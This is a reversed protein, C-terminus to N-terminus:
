KRAYKAAESNIPDVAHQKIADLREQEPDTVHVQNGAPAAVPMRNVVALVALVKNKLGDIAKVNASVGDLIATVDEMANSQNELKKLRDEISQLQEVTLTVKGDSVQLGEVGLLSNVTIFKKEMITHILNTERTTEEGEGANNELQQQPPTEPEQEPEKEVGFFKQVRQLFSDKKEREPLGPLHLKTAANRIYNYSDETVSKANKIIADVFGLAHTEAAPLWRQENMLQIIEDITHNVANGKAHDLYKKAIMLDIAEQSKKQSQLQQILTEIDTANMDKWIEMSITSRHCFWFGDDAMEVRKAGYCMWTAASANFGLLHVTVNGHDIFAQAIALAENVSGGYSNIRVIVPQDKYQRLYYKVYSTMYGWEDIVGSINIIQAEM